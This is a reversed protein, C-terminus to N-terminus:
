NVPLRDGCDLGYVSCMNHAPIGPGDCRGLVASCVIQPRTLTLESSATWGYNRERAGSIDIVSGTATNVIQSTLAGYWFRGDPSLSSGFDTPKEATFEVVSRTHGGFDEFELGDGYVAWIGASVDHVYRAGPRAFPEEGAAWPWVWVDALPVDPWGTTADPTAFYVAADDISALIVPREIPALIAARALIDGTSAEVVVLDGRRGATTEVWAVLDHDPNGVIHRDERWPLQGTVRNPTRPGPNTWPDKGIWKKEEGTSQWIIQTSGSEVYVIGTRVFTFIRVSQAPPASSGPSPTPGNWAGVAVLATLCLTVVWMASTLAATRREGGRRRAPRAHVPEM